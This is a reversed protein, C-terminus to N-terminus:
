PPAHPFFGPGWYLESLIHDADEDDTLHGPGGAVAEGEQVPGGAVAEEQVPGGAVAEGEAVEEHVPGGAVADGEQVTQGGAVAEEEQVPGGAVAEGEQVPGGEVAVEEHVPGGAVAEGEQVTQGGAVAEEEQVPGGAVAEGEQVTQGGQAPQDNAATEHRRWLWLVVGGGVVAGFLFSFTRDMSSFNALRIFTTKGTGNEGLLVVIESDTFEGHCINLQLILFRNLSVARGRFITIAM